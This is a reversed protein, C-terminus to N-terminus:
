LLGTEFYLVFFFAICHPVFPLICPKSYSSATVHAIIGNTESDFSQPLVWHLFSSVLAFAHARGGGGMTQRSQPLGVSVVTDKRAVHLM